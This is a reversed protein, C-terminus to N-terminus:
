IFTETRKNRYIRFYMTTIPDFLSCQFLTLLNKPLYEISYIYRIIFPVVMDKYYISETTDLFYTSPYGTVMVCVAIFLDGFVNSFSTLMDALIIDSFFVPARLNLTFIRKLM